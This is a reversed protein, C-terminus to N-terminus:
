RNVGERELLRYITGTGVKYTKRIDAISTRNKYAELIANRRVEEEGGEVLKTKRGKYKGQSLAIDIGERQRQKISKREFEVLGAFVTLLFDNMPNDSSTDLWAESVSKLSAGREKIQDIIELLDKTSRSLRSIEHVIVIDGGELGDLMQQLEPRDLTAGSIKEEYFVTCGQEKLSKKQRVTNQQQSSVRIYGVKRVM